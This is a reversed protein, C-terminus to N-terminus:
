TQPTQTLDVDILAPVGLGLRDEPFRQADQLAGPPWPIRFPTLNELPQPLSAGGLATVDLGLREQVPGQLDPLSGASRLLRFRRRNEM